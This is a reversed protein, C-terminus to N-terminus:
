FVEKAYKKRVLHFASWVVDVVTCYESVQKHSTTINM